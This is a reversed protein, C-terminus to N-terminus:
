RSARTSTNLPVHHGGLRATCPSARCMDTTRSWWQWWWARQRGREQRADIQERDSGDFRQYEILNGSGQPECNTKPQLLWSCALRFLWDRAQERLVPALRRGAGVVVGDNTRESMQTLVIAANRASIAAAVEASKARPLGPAFV